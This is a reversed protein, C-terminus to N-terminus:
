PVMMNLVTVVCWRCHRIDVWCNTTMPFAPDTHELLLATITSFCCLHPDYTSSTIKMSYERSYSLSRIVYMTGLYACMETIVFYLSIANTTPLELTNRTMSKFNQTACQNDEVFGNARDRFTWLECNNGDGQQDERSIRICKCRTAVIVWRHLPMRILPM